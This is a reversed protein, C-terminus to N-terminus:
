KASMAFERVLAPVHEQYAEGLLFMLAFALQAPREEPVVSSTQLLVNGDDTVAFFCGSFAPRTIRRLFAAVGQKPLIGIHTTLYVHPDSLWLVMNIGKYTFFSTKGAKGQLEALPGAYQSALFENIGREIRELRDISEMIDSGVHLSVVEFSNQRVLM